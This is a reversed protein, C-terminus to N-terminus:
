STAVRGFRNRFEPPQGNLSLAFRGANGCYSFKKVSPVPSRPLVHFDGRLGIIRNQEAIIDPEVTVTTDQPQIQHKGGIAAIDGIV